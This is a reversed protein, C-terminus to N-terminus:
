EVMARLEAQSLKPRSREEEKRKDKKAQPATSIKSLELIKQAIEMPSSEEASSQRPPSPTPAAPPASPASPEPPTRPMAEVVPTDEPMVTDKESTDVSETIGALYLFDEMDPDEAVAATEAQAGASGLLPGRPAPRFDRVRRRWASPGCLHAVPALEEATLEEGDIKRMDIAELRPVAALVEHASQSATTTPAAPLKSATASPATPRSLRAVAAPAGGVGM